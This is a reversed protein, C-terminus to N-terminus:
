VPEQSAPKPRLDHLLAWGDCPDIDVVYANPSCTAIVALLAATGARDAPGDTALDVQKRVFRGVPGRRGQVIAVALVRLVIGFDVITQWATRPLAAATRWQPREAGLVRGVLAYSASAVGAAAAGWLATAWDAQGSYVFWLAYLALWVGLGFATRRVVSPRAPAARKVATGEVGDHGTLVGYRAKM